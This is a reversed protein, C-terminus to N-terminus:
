YLLLTAAYYVPSHPHMCISSYVKPIGTGLLYIRLPDLSTVMTWVRLDFKNGQYTMPNMVYEQLVWTGDPVHKLLWDSTADESAMDRANYSYVHIGVQNPACCTHMRICVRRTLTLTPTPTLTPSCEARARGVQNFGFQPKLIWIRHAESRATDRNLELNYQRFRRAPTQLASGERRVAFARSTFRCWPKGDPTVALPDLGQKHFCRVHLRALSTKQGVQQSLGGISNIIVGPSLQQPRFFSAVTEWPKTWLVDVESLRSRQKLECDGLEELMPRVTARMDGRSGVQFLRSCRKPRKRALAGFSTADALKAYGGITAPARFVLNEGLPVAAEFVAGQVSQAVRGANASGAGKTAKLTCNSGACGEAPLVPDTCKGCLKPCKDRVLGRDPPSLFVDAFSGKACHQVMDACHVQPGPCGKEACPWPGDDACPPPRARTAAAGAKARREQTRAEYRYTVNTRPLATAGAVTAQQQQQDAAHQDAAQQGAATGHAVDRSIVEAFLEVIGRSEKTHAMAEEGGGGFLPLIFGPDVEEITGRVTRSAAVTPWELRRTLFPGRHQHSTTALQNTHSVGIALSAFSHFGLICLLLMLMTTLGVM